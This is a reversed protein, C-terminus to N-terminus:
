ATFLAGLAQSHASGFSRRNGARLSRGLGNAIPQLVKLKDNVKSTVLANGQRDKLNLTLGESHAIVRKV